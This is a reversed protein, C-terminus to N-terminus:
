MKTGTGDNCYFWSYGSKPFESDLAREEEVYQPNMSVRTTTVITRSTLTRSMSYSLIDDIFSQAERSISAHTQAMNTSAHSGNAPAHLNPM